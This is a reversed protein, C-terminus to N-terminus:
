KFLKSFRDIQKKPVRSKSTKLSDPKFTEGKNDNYFIESVASWEVTYDEDCICSIFGVLEVTGKMWHIRDKIESEQEGTLYYKFDSLFTEEGIYGEELLIDYIVEVKKKYEKLVHKLYPIKNESLQLSVAGQNNCFSRVIKVKKGINKARDDKLIGNMLAATHVYWEDRKTKNKGAYNDRITQFVEIIENGSMYPFFDIVYNTMLDDQYIVNPYSISKLITDVGIRKGRVFYFWELSMYIPYFPIQKNYNEYIEFIHTRQIDWDVVNPLPCFETSPLADGDITEIVDRRIHYTMTSNGSCSGDIRFLEPVDLFRVKYDFIFAYCYKPFTSYDETNIEFAECFFSWDTFCEIDFDKDYFIDGHEDDYGDKDFICYYCSDKESTVIHYEKYVYYQRGTIYPFFIFKENPRKIIYESKGMQTEGERYFNIYEIHIGSRIFDSLIYRYEQPSVEWEMDRGRKNSM